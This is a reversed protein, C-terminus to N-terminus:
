VVPAKEVLVVRAKVTDGGKVAAVLTRKSVHKWFRSYLPSTTSAHFVWFWVRVTVLALVLSGHARLGRGVGHLPPQAGVITPTPLSMLRPRVRLGPTSTPALRAAVYSTPLLAVHPSVAPYQLVFYTANSYLYLLLIM